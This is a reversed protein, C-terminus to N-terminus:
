FFEEKRDVAIVLFNEGAFLRIFVPRQGPISDSNLKRIMKESSFSNFIFIKGCGDDAWL